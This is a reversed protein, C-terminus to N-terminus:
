QVTVALQAQQQAMLRDEELHQQHAKNRADDRQEARQADAKLATQTSNLVDQSAHSTSSGAADGQEEVAQNVVPTMTSLARQAAFLALQEQRAEVNGIAGHKEVFAQRADDAKASPMAPLWRTNPWPQLLGASANEVPAGAAPKANNDTPQTTPVYTAPRDTTIPM